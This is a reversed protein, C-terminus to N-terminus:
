ENCATGTIKIKKDSLFEYSIGNIFNMSMLINELSEDKYTSNIFCTQIVKEDMEFEVGYWRELQNFAQILSEDRFQIIGDKWYLFHYIDVEKYALKGENNDYHAQQGKTLVPTENVSGTKKVKVKGSAVTVQIEKEEPYAKINFSTGLVETRLVGTKVIFPRGVNKTVEFFAEGSLHVERKEGFQVPFSISSGANLRVISGDSLQFTLKQGLSTTKTVLSPESPVQQNGRFLYGLVSILLVSAAIGVWRYRNLSQHSSSIESMIRSKMRRAVEIKREHEWSAIESPKELNSQIFKEVSAKEEETCTRKLYRDLLQSFEKETM